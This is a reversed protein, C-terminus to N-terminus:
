VYAGLSFTRNGRPQEPAGDEKGPLFSEAMVAAKMGFAIEIEFVQRLLDSHGERGFFIFCQHIPEFFM